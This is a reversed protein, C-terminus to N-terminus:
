ASLFTIADGSHANDPLHFSQGNRLLAGNRCASLRRLRGDRRRHRRVTIRMPPEEAVPASAGHDVLGCRSQAGNRSVYRAQRDTLVLGAAMTSAEREGGDRLIADAPIVFGQRDFAGSRGFQGGRSLVAGNNRLVTGDHFRAGWRHTDALGLMAALADRESVDARDTTRALQQVDVLHSRAPKWANVTEVIKKTQAADIPVDDGAEAVLRFQAWGYADHMASGNRYVTGGHRNVPLRELIQLDEYGIAKLAEKIAWPTGKKRH